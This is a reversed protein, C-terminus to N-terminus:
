RVTRDTRVWNRPGRGSSVRAMLALRRLMFAPLTLLARYLSAPAEVIRLAFVVSAGQALLNGLPWVARRSRGGLVFLGLAALNATALLTQPPILPELAADLASLDRTIIARRLLPWSARRALAWRGSEWRAQQAASAAFSTPMESSVWAENVFAVRWGGLVLSLHQERDEAFSFAQWPHRELVERSFAMGSGVLGASLGLASRGLPRTVNALAFGAARIASAGSARGNSVLYRAQAVGAGGGIAAGLASLLNLSVRCDADVVVVADIEPDALVREFGWALAHGKGQLRVEARELVEAQARAARHATDDTCNDAVVVLRSPPSGAATRM